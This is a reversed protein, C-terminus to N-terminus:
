NTRRFNRELVENERSVCLFTWTVHETQNRVGVVPSGKLWADNLPRLAAGVPRQRRSPARSEECLPRREGKHHRAPKQRRTRGCTVGKGATWAWRQECVHKLGIAPHVFGSGSTHPPTRMRLNQVHRGLSDSKQQLIIIVSIFAERPACFHGLHGFHYM